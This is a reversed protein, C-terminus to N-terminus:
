KQGTRRLTATVTLPAIGLPPAMVLPPAAFNMTSRQLAGLHIASAVSAAELIRSGITTWDAQVEVQTEAQMVADGYATADDQITCSDWSTVTM